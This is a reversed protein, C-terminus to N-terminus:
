SAVEKRLKVMGCRECVKKQFCVHTGVIRPEGSIPDNDHVAAYKEEITQWKPWKHFFPWCTRPEPKQNESTV